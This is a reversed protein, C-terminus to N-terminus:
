SADPYGAVGDGDLDACMGSKGLPGAMCQAGGQLYEGQGDGEPDICDPSSGLECSSGYAPAPPSTAAPASSTSDSGAPKVAVVLDVTKTETCEPDGQCSDAMIRAPRRELTVKQGAYWSADSTGGPCLEFDAALSQEAGSADKVNLYCAADGSQVSILTVPEGAPKPAATTMTTTPAPEPKPQAQDTNGSCAVLALMVMGSLAGGRILDHRKM